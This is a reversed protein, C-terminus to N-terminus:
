VALSKDTVCVLWYYSNGGFEFERLVDLGIKRTHAVYSRKNIKNVFTVLVDFRESMAALSFNFIKNLLGSGRESKDICIPGYQYSNLETLQRSQYTVNPLENIMYKFMPWASWYGWSAAMVYAVIVGDREAIFLGREDAVLKVLQEQTFATTVFGDKKDEEAISDIQYKRHLDLVGNIDAVGAVRVSVDM